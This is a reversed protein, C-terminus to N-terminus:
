QNLNISCIYDNICYVGFSFKKKKLIFYQERVCTTLPIWFEYDEILEYNMIWLEYNHNSNYNLTWLEFKM